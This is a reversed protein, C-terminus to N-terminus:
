NLSKIIFRINKFNIDLDKTAEKLKQLIRTHQMSLETALPSNTVSIVLNGDKDFYAPQSYKAVKEDTIKHWMSRLTELKINEDIGLNEIVQPLIDSVKTPGRDIRENNM